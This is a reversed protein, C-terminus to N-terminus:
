VNNTKKRKIYLDFFILILFGVLGAYSKYNSSLALDNFDLLTASIALLTLACILLPSIKKM